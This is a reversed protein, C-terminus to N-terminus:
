SSNAARRCPRTDRLALTADPRHAAPPRAVEGREGLRRAPGLGAVSPLGQGAAGGKDVRDQAPGPDAGALMLAAPLLRAPSSPSPFSARIRGAM